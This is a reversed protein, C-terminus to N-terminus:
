VLLSEALQQYSKSKSIYTEALMLARRLYLHLDYEYTFGIGGHAQIAMEVVQPIFESAFGKAALAAQPFQKLDNDMCWVAFRGLSSAQESLLCMDALRHQVAQFSGIAKGFQKRTKVYEVTMELVKDAVASLESVAFVSIGQLLETVLIPKQNLLIAEVSKLKLDSYKRILDFSNIESSVLGPSATNVLYLNIGNKVLVPVILYQADVVTPVLKLNGTLLSKKEQVKIDNKLVGFAATVKKEGSIIEPLYKKKNEKMTFSNIVWVGLVLTEFLPLPCLVRASEEVVVQLSLNGLDLGNENEPLFASFCGLEVLKNWLEKQKSSDFSENLYKKIEESKFNESFFERLVLSFDELETSRLFSM